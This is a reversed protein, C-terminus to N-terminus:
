SLKGGQALCETYILVLFVTLFTRPVWWTGKGLPHYVFM